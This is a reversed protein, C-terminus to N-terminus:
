TAISRMTVTGGSDRNYVTVKKDISSIIDYVYYSQCLIDFKRLEEYRSQLVLMALHSRLVAGTCYVLRADQIGHLEYSPM